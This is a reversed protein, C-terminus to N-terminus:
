KIPHYSITLPEWGDKSIKHDQLIVHSVLVMTDGAGCHKKGGFKATYDSALLFEWDYRWILFM